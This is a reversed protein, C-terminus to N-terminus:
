PGTLRFGSGQVINGGYWTTVCGYGRNADGVYGVAVCFADADCCAPCRDKVVVGTEECDDCGTSSAALLIIAASITAISLAKPLQPM